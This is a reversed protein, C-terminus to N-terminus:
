GGEFITGEGALEGVLSYVNAITKFAAAFPDGHEKNEGIKCKVTLPKQWDWDRKIGYVNDVYIVGDQEYGVRDGLHYDYDAIWPHGDITEAQFAAFARSKWDGSRLTLVGNLTYATGSGREFHEQWSVDGNYFARIPDTYREWALLTDNLQGQYLNDIGNTPLDQIPIGLNIALGPNIVDSLQALAYRIGFSIAENVIAPSKSGTMITKASGKHYTLDTSIMGNYTGDWWIVAPPNPAVDVLQELLYTQGIGSADEVTEGNLIQGPDYTNGTNLDITVPTILDDLTVAVTDLLGDAVTGTPGTVGSIDEFSFVVCNRLPAALSSLDAELNDLNIGTIDAILEPVVELLNQLEINPSDSDTTLYTYARMMCGSDALIDKYAEHWPTWQAGISTWRSQDLATDVFAVQIPWETPLLNLAADPNLPNIWGAPNFINTVVSLVPMFLRALNIFSTLACITRCPGPLVWMRPLQIEPPFIPNAAVLLRKAHERFHLATLEITHIGREDKKVHIETVKGGWRTKWNPNLPDPDVLINVDETLQIDQVLLQQMWNEWAVAVMLKGTDDMLEEISCSLEGDLEWMNLLNSDAIRILPRLKSNAIITDRVGNLYVAASMPETALDPVGTTGPTALVDNVWQSLQLTEPSITPIAGIDALFQTM